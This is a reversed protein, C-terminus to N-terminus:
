QGPLITAIAIYQFGVLDATDLAAVVHLHETRGDARSILETTQPDRGNLRQALGRRLTEERNDPLPQDGLFSTGQQNVTIEIAKDAHAAPQERAQPLSVKLSM